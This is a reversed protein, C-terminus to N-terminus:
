YDINGKTVHNLNIAEEGGGAHSNQVNYYKIDVGKHFLLVRMTAHLQNDDPPITYEEIYKVLIKGHAIILTRDLLGPEIANVRFPTSFHMPCKTSWMYVISGDSLITSKLAEHFMDEIAKKFLLVENNWQPVISENEHIYIACLVIDKGYRGIFFQRSLKLKYFEKLEVLLLLYEGEGVIHPVFKIPLSDNQYEEFELIAKSMSCFVMGAKESIQQPQDYYLLAM